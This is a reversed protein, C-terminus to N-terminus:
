SFTLAVHACNNKRQFEPHCAGRDTVELIRQLEEDVASEQEFAVVDRLPFDSGRQLLFADLQGEAGDRPARDGRELVLAVQFPLAFDVFLGGVGDVRQQAIQAHRGVRRRRVLPADDAHDDELM